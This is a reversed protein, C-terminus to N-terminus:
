PSIYEFEPRREHAGPEFSAFKRSPIGKWIEFRRERLGPLWYGSQTCEAGGFGWSVWDVYLVESYM